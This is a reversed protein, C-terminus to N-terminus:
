KVKALKRTCICWQALSFRKAEKAIVGAKVLLQRKVRAKQPRFNLPQGFNYNHSEFTFDSCGYKQFYSHVAGYVTLIVMPRTLYATEFSLLDSLCREFFVEAKERYVMRREPPGYKAALHFVHCKRIDHAPWTETPIEVKYLVDKYPVENKVMWDAYHILSARAYSFMYDVEGLELKTGLYKGLVQLFVLYSWRHEPEELRLAAIDDQPHICRQLLEEGKTMYRRDNSLSYADILANISNGAGRGAKHYLTSATSSAGGSPGEDIVGLLTRSGDDMGIVWDALELVADAAEQDGTLYFYHLLGSTYNHENSPGGGYSGSKGNRASYTRHTCM